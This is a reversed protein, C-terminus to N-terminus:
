KTLHAVKHSPKNPLRDGCSDQGHRGELALV